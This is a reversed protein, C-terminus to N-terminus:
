GIMGSQDQDGRELSDRGWVLVKLLGYKRVARLWPCLRTLM